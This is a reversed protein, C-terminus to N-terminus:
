IDGSLILQNRLAQIARSRLSYIANRTRGMAQAIDATSEGTLMRSIVESQDSSLCGRIQEIVLRAHSQEMEIQARLDTIADGLMLGNTGTIFDELSYHRRAYRIHKRLLELATRVAYNGIWADLPCDFCFSEFESETLKVYTQNVVETVLTELPTQYYVPNYSRTLRKLTYERIVPDLQLWSASDGDRLRSVRKSEARYYKIVEDVYTDPVGTGSSVDETGPIRVPKRERVYRIIPTIAHTLEVQRHEDWRLNQQRKYNKVRRFCQATLEDWPHCDLM